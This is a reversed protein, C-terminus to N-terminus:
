YDRNGLYDTLERLTSGEVGATELANIALQHYHDKQRKAGDLGLLKPYTSKFNTEDSGVPKGIRAEDGTVDLIDDQVQFILGLYYGFKKMQRLQEEDAGGLYAGIKVAFQLLKGTKLSHIQELEELTSEKNEAEMDLLQGAVMGNPGSAKSLERIVYVKQENTLGSDNAILEFSYTLLGDGALIATAEGYVKHNTPEGRRFDDNDMSPLDDHILSYTHIMELAAAVQLASDVKGGFAECSALLLIPRLRKGGVTISYAMAQKLTDSSTASKVQQTVHDNFLTQRKSLYVKLDDM